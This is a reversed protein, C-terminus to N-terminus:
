NLATTSDDEGSQEEEESVPDVFTIGRREAEERLARRYVQAREWDEKYADKAKVTQTRM